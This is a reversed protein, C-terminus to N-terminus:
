RCEAPAYKAPVDGSKFPILNRTKATLETASSCGWDISGAASPDALNVPAAAGNGMAYPSFTITKLNMDSAGGFPLGNAANAIFTATIMGNAPDISIDNVYKSATSINAPQYETAVAQVGTIGGSQFAEAVTVKAASAGVLGESVKSRVTYDQYAPLAIAALIAIIAIVIMLEILTFGKQIMKM